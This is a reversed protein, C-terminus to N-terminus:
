QVETAAVVDGHDCSDGSLMAENTMWPSSDTRVISLFFEREVNVPHVDVWGHRRTWEGRLAERRQQFDAVHHEVLDEAGYRASYRLPSLSQPWTPWFLRHRSEQSHPMFAGDQLLQEAYQQLDTLVNIVLLQCEVSMMVVDAYTYLFMQNTDVFVEDLAHDKIHMEVARAKVGREHQSEERSHYGVRHLWPGAMVPDHPLLHIGPSDCWNEIDVLLQQDLCIVFAITTKNGDESHAVSDTDM